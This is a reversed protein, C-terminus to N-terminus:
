TRGRASFVHAEAEVVLESTVRRRSGSTVVCFRINPANVPLRGKTSWDAGRKSGGVDALVTEYRVLGSLGPVNRKIRAQVQPVAGLKPEVWLDVLAETEAAGDTGGPKRAAFGVLDAGDIGVRPQMAHEDALCDVEASFAFCDVGVDILETASLGGIPQDDRQSFKRRRVDKVGVLIRVLDM